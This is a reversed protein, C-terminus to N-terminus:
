AHVNPTRLSRRHDRAMPHIRRVSAPSASRAPYTIGTSGSAADVGSPNPRIIPRRPLGKLRAIEDRLTQIEAQQQEIVRLLREVLPTREEASVQIGAVKTPKSGDM